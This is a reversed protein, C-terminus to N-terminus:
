RSWNARSLATKAVGLYSRSWASSRRWRRRGPTEPRRLHGLRARRRRVLRDQRPHVRLRCRAWAPGLPSPRLSPAVPRPHQAALGVTSLGNAVAVQGGMVVAACCTGAGRGRARVRRVLRASISRGSWCPQRCDRGANWTQTGGTLGRAAGHEATTVLGAQMDARLGPRATARGRAAHRGRARGAARRGRRRPPTWEARGQPHRTCRSSASWLLPLGLDAALSADPGDFIRLGHVKTALRASPRPTDHTFGGAGFLGARSRGSRDRWRCRRRRVRQVVARLSDEPRGEFRQAAASSLVARGGGKDAILCSRSPSTAM